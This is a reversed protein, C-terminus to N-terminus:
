QLIVFDKYLQKPIRMNQTPNCGDGTIMRCEAYAILAHPTRIISPVRICPFGDEWPKFLEVSEVRPDCGQIQFSKILKVDCADAFVLSILVLAFAIKM